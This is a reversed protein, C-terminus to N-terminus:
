PTNEVNVQQTLTVNENASSTARGLSVTLNILGHQLNVTNNYTFSCSNVNTALVASSGSGLPDVVNDNFGYNWHRTLVVPGGAVLPACRFTVPKSVIQFRHSPSANPITAGSVAFPNSQMNILTATNSPATWTPTVTGSANLSARNMSGAVNSYADARSFGPGLNYVVVYDGAAPTVSMTGVVAFSLKSNDTFSLYPTAGADDSADLYLGGSKVPIFEVMTGGTINLIRISNPLAGRLERTMRRLSLDAVDTLDAREAADVYQQVPKRIFLVMIGSLIGILVMVVVAEVLTFGRQRNRVPRSM